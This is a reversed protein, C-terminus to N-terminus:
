NNNLENGDTDASAAGNVDDGSSDTPPNNAPQDNELTIEIEQDGERLKFLQSVQAASSESIAGFAAWFSAPSLTIEATGTESKVRVRVRRESEAEDDDFIQLLEARLQTLSPQSLEPVAGTPFRTAMLENVFEIAAQKSEDDLRNALWHLIAQTAFHHVQVYAQNRTSATRSSPTGAVTREAAPPNSQVPNEQLMRRTQRRIEEPAIGYRRLMEVAGSDGQRLLGLLLHETGIYHHGMRRAADVGLELSKKVGASLAASTQGAGTKEKSLDAVHKELQEHEVGMERLVRGAVGGEERALAILLHETDISTHQFKEASEQALSLVRRARQTFREMKNPM